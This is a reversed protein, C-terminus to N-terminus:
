GFGRRIDDENTSAESTEEKVPFECGLQGVCVVVEDDNFGPLEDHVIRTGDSHDGSWFAAVLNLGDHVM